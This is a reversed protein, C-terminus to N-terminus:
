LLANKRMKYYKKRYEVLNQNEDELYIKIDDMIMRNSKEKEEKSLSQYSEHAKKPHNKLYKVSSNKSM